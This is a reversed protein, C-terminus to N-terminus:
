ASSPDRPDAAAHAAAMDTGELALYATGLRLVTDITRATAPRRAPPPRADPTPVRESVARGKSATALLPSAHGVGAAAWTDCDTGRGADRAVQGM